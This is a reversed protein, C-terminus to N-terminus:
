LVETLKELGISRSAKILVCAGTIKQGNLWTKAQKVDEFHTCSVEDKLRAFNEGVLILKELNLEKLMDIIAQHEELSYPGLELMDGIIAIKKDAVIGSFTQIAAQMNMPNANYADLFITNRETKILESRNNKPIYNEIARKIDEPEVGFHMGTSVATMVNEFQFTGILHTNIVALIANISECNIQLFPHDTTINGRFDADSASGYTKKECAGSLDMLLENDANVFLIGKKTNLYEYLENKGKIVGEIGGFGELHAKGINTILGYEPQAIKCLLAIESIHNAGLEIIAIETEDNISLVTLPVGIHNNLNGVTSLVNYKTSLVANVLEKSTTKGNSGTICLVPINFQRRHYTALEQLSELVDEVLIYKDNVQFEANDIVAYTCGKSLAAEAYENGDFNEGRLAFFISNPDVKRSDTCIKLSAKFIEYLDQVRHSM